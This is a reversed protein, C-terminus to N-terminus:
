AVEQHQCAAEQTCSRRLPTRALHEILAQRAPVWAAHLACVDEDKCPGGRLVCEGDDTPGEIAEVVDLFSIEDLAVALQYGGTPGPESTVWGRHVLPGLVQPIFAATAETLHALDSAKLKGRADLACLARVALDTKRTVELRM